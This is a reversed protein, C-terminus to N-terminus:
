ENVDYKKLWNNLTQYNGLGLLQTAKSKNGHSEELARELYHTAVSAIIGQLDLGASLDRNLITDNKQITNPSELFAEEIDNKEIIENESWISARLLTNSLERINGPWSYQLMINRASVSLKKHKWNPETTSEKNIKELFYDTLLNLDGERERLPPLHIVAVALRYFLDERFSGTEVEKILTRNTAAIVRIDIKIPKTAGVLTVEQEQLTRLLKVQLGLPLEGIEDLFLTGENAVEFYGKRDSTAGTFAGKKHGFFESEALEKNIAGCNVAIFPKSQRLSALHISRALVEKGTGSEGEILVPLTRPAVRQAKEIVQQMVTSKHIVSQFAEDVQYNDTSLQSIRKDAQKILTPIFEASIEFPVNAIKAGQERSSEILEAAYRTKALIIWVASMAPTGPSLHFTLKSDTGQKKQIADITSTVAKYIEGFDTPSPLDFRHLKIPKDTHTKLWKVFSESEKKQYNCLLIIQDFKFQIVAQAVPGLGEIKGQSANLDTQGLWSFLTNKYESHNKM